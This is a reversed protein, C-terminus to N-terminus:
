KSGGESVSICLMLLVLLFLRVGGNLYVGGLLSAYVCLCTYKIRRFESELVKQDEMSLNGYVVTAWPLM